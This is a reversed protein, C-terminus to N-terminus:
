ASATAHYRLKGESIAKRHAESKPRGKHAASLIAKTEETAKVGTKSQSIKLKQEETMVVGKNAPSRGRRAESMKLRTELSHTFGAAGDGGATANLLNLGEARGQAIRVVERTKLDEFPIDSYYELIDMHINQPGHKLVWRCVARNPTAKTDTRHRTLRKQPLQITYGIYRHVGDGNHLAYITGSVIKDHSM